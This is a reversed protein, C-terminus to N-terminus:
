FNFGANSRGSARARRVAPSIDVKKKGYIYNRMGYVALALSIVTDDHAGEPASFRINGHDSVEYAYIGLEEILTTLEKPFTILRQEISVMLREILEKKSTSSIQFPLVSLGQRQLDEVIPSGVGTADVVAMSKYKDCHALIREKQIAWDIQNFREQAVVHRDERCITTLVTFDDVKALDVGTVYTKERRYQEIGGSICQQIGKFVSAASEEFSGLFEQAFVRQPLDKRLADVEQKPILDTEDVTLHYRRYQQDDTAKCWLEYIWSVKGKPTFIFL